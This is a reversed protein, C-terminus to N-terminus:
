QMPGTMLLGIINELEQTRKAIKPYDPQKYINPDQLQQQLTDLEQRLSIEHQEM